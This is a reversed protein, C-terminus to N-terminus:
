SFCAISPKGISKISFYPKAISLFLHLIHIRLRSSNVNLNICKLTFGVTNTITSLLLFFYLFLYLFHCSLVWEFLNENLCIIQLWIWFTIKRKIKLFILIKINNLFLTIKNLKLQEQKCISLPLTSLHQWKQQNTPQNTPQQNIVLLTFIWPSEEYSWTMEEEATKLYLKLDMVKDKHHSKWYNPKRLRREELWRQGEASRRSPVSVQCTQRRQFESDQEAGWALWVSM